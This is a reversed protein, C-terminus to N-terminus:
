KIQTKRSDLPHTQLIMAPSPQRYSSDQSQPLSLKRMSFPLSRRTQRIPIRESAKSRSRRAHRTRHLPHASQAGPVANLFAALLQQPLPGSRRNRGPRTRCTRSRDFAPNRIIRSSSIRRTADRQQPVKLLNRSHILNAHAEILCRILQLPRKSQVLPVLDCLSFPEVKFDELSPRPIRLRQM